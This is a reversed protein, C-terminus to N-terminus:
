RVRRVFFTREMGSLRLTYSGSAGGDRSVKVQYSTAPKSLQRLAQGSSSQRWAQGNDLVFTVRDGNGLAYSALHAFISDVTDGAHHLPYAVSGGSALSESGFSETSTQPARAQSSPLSQVTFDQAPAAPSAVERANATAPAAVARASASDFCALRQSPSAISRCGIVAGLADDRPEAGAVGPVVLLLSIALWSKM